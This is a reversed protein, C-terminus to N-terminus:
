ISEWGGDSENQMIRKQQEIIISLLFFLWTHMSGANSISGMHSYVDGILGDFIKRDDCSLAKRYDHLEKIMADVVQKQTSVTHGMPM